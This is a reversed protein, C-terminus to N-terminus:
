SRFALQSSRKSKILIKVQQTFVMALILVFHWEDVYFTELVSVLLFIDSPLAVHSEKTNAIKSCM